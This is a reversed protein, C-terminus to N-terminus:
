PEHGVLTGKKGDRVPVSRYVNGSATHEQCFANIQMLPFFGNGHQQQDGKTNNHEQRTTSENVVCV